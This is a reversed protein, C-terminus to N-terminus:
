EKNSCPGCLGSKNEKPLPDGCWECEASSENDDDLDEFEDDPQKAM